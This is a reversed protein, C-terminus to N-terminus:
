SVKTTKYSVTTEFVVSDPPPPFPCARKIKHPVLLIFHAQGHPPSKKLKCRVTKIFAQKLPTKNYTTSLTLFGM